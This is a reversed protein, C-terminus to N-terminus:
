EGRAPNTASRQDDPATTRPEPVAAAQRVEQRVKRVAADLGAAVEQQRDDDSYRYIPAANESSQYRPGEHGQPDRGVPDVAHTRHSVSPYGDTLPDTRGGNRSCAEARSLGTGAEIGGAHPLPGGM